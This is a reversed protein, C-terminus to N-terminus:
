QSDSFVFTALDMILKVQLRFNVIFEPAHVSYDIRDIDEKYVRAAEAALPRWRVTTHLIYYWSFYYNYEKSREGSAGQRSEKINLQKTHDAFVRRVM